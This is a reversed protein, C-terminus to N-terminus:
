FKDDVDTKIEHIHYFIIDNGNNKSKINQFSWMLITFSTSIYFRVFVCQTPSM